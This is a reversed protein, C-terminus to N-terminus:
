PTFSAYASIREQPERSISRWSSIPARLMIEGPIIWLGSYRVKHLGEM